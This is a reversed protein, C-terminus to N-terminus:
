YIAYRYTKAPDFYEEFNAEQYERYAEEVAEDIEIINLNKRETAATSVIDSIDIDKLGPFRENEFDIIYKYRM